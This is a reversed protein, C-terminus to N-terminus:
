GSALAIGAAVAGLCGVATVAVNRLATSAEGDHVLLVTQYSFTSFTTFAGCFGTGAIFLMRDPAQGGVLLGLALSGLLNVVLTGRPFDGTARRALASDIGFRLVAGAASAVAFALWSGWAASLAPGRAARHAHHDHRGM